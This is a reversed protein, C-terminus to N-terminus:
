YLGGFSLETGVWLNIPLSLHGKLSVFHFLVERDAVEKGSGGPIFFIYWLESQRLIAGKPWNYHSRYSM